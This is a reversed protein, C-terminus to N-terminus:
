SNIPLGDSIWSNESDDDDKHPRIIFKDIVMNMIAFVRGTKSAGKLCVVLPCRSQSFELLV